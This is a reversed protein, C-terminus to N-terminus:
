DYDEYKELAKRFEGIVADRVVAPSLIRIKSGFSCLDMIMRTNPVARFSIVARDEGVSIKQSPHLPLDRFFGAQDTACELVVEVAPDGNHIYVGYSDYFLDDVDFGAPLRFRDETVRLSCIRDLGYVRLAKREEAFGILYWRKMDEKLAFPSVTLTEQVASSYKKYSIVVKVNDLMASMIDALYIQGSPINEVSVRGSLRERSLELLSKVTFTNVMWATNGELSEPYRIFYRRTSRNCEIDIGFIEAVADRHNCFTRRSYPSDWRREWRSQIEELSLGELGAKSVTQILWVYKSILETVM